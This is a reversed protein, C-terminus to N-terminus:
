WSNFWQCHDWANQKGSPAVCVTGRPCQQWPIKIKGWGLGDTWEKWFWGQQGYPTSLAILRGRSVAPMPRVSRYLDDPVRSAKDIVLLAV